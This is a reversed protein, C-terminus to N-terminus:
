KKAPAAPAPPQMVAKCKKCTRHAENGFFTEIAAKIQVGIDKLDFSAEHLVNGCSECYWRLFDKETPKRQREVVVGVTNAPRQPSHPIKAPLLFMEGQRVPIDRPKGDEMIRVTIDGEVQFFLEEGENIHFDKRANPGGVVMVIFERDTWICKNGVPPKLQDRNQDGWNKLNIPSITLM